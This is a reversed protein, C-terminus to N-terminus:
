LSGDFFYFLESLLVGHLFYFPENLFINFILPGLVSGLPIDCFIQKWSSYTNKNETKQQVPILSDIENM